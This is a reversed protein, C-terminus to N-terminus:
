INDIFGEWKSQEHCSTAGPSSLLIMESEKADQEIAKFGWLGLVQVTMFMQCSSPQFCLLKSTFWCKPKTECVNCGTASSWTGFHQSRFYWIRFVASYSFSITDQLFDSSRWTKIPNTLSTITISNTSPLEYKISEVQWLRKKTLFCCM